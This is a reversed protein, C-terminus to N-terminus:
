AKQCMAFVKDKSDKGELTTLDLMSIATKLAWLKSDSKISRSALVSAREKTDFEDVSMPFSELFTRLKNM